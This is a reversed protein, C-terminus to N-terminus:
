LRNRGPCQIGGIGVTEGQGRSLCTSHSSDTWNLQQFVWFVWHCWSDDSIIHGSLRSLCCMSIVIAATDKDVRVASWGFLDQFCVMFTIINIWALLAFLMVYPLQTFYPWSAMPVTGMRHSGYNWTLSGWSQHGRHSPGWQHTFCLHPYVSSPFLM